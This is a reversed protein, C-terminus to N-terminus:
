NIRLFPLGTKSEQERESHTGCDMDEKGNSSLGCTRKSGTRVTEAEKRSHM